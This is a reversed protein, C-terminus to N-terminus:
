QIQSFSSVWHQWQKSDITQHTVCCALVYGSNRVTTILKVKTTARQIKARLRSVLIDISRDYSDSEGHISSLLQDRTLVCQPRQLFAHLLHFEATTLSVQRNDPSLLMRATVNLRWGQFEYVQYESDVLNQLMTTRRLSAQIHALLVRAHFPKTIYNDAGVELSLIKEADAGVGTLMLIPASTFQRLQKCLTIGDKGHPFLIDLLILDIANNKLEAEAQADDHCVLARYGHQTLVKSLSACLDVDDDVLLITQGSM